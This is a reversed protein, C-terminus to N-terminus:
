STGGGLYRLAYLVQEELDMKEDPLARVAKQAEMVSYGLSTLAAIVEAEAATIGLFPVAGVGFLAGVKDRLDVVLREATKKGIGPIHTLSAVDGKAIAEKLTEPSLFSMINLATRPGIGSVRLLMEFLELGEASPFGYLALENERVHLHTALYIEQGPDGLNDLLSAPVFVKVGLGGVEVIVHNAGKAALLGRLSAIM